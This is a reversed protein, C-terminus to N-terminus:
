NELAAAGAAIDLLEGTIAAQRLSNYTLTLDDLLDGANDTANKMAIMRAAQESAHTELMIQYLYVRLYRPILTQLIIERSPEFLLDSGTGLAATQEAPTTFPLFPVIAPEQRLTSVFQNYGLYVRDARAALFEDIMLQAIPTVEQYDPVRDPAPFDALLQDKAYRTLYQRGKVGVVVVKVSRGADLQEKQWLYFRRFLQTNLSGALGRNTTVLLILAQKNPRHAFLPQSAPDVAPALSGVIESALASFPRSDLARKIARQMKSAAVLQMASTIKQTSTISKLKRRLDRGSAAM